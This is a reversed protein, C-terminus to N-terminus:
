ALLQLTGGSKILVGGGSEVTLSNGFIITLVLNNPITLVAGNQVIVNTTSTFHEALICDSSIVWNGEVQPTDCLLAGHDGHADPIYDYNLILQSSFISIIFLSFFFASYKNELKM